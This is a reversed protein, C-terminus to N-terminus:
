RSRRPMDGPVLRKRRKHINLYRFGDSQSRISRRCGKPIVAVSGKALAIDKGDLTLTGTGAFVITIVDVEDNVHEPVGQGERWQLLTFDLDECEGGQIPGTGSDDRDWCFQIFEAM